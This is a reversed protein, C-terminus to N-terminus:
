FLWVAPCNVSFVGVVMVCMCVYMIVCVCVYVMVHRCIGLMVCMCIGDCVEDYVADSCEVLQGCRVFVYVFVCVCVCVVCVNKRVKDIVLLHPVMEGSALQVDQNQV